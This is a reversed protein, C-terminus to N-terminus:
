AQSSAPEDTQNGLSILASKLTFAQLPTDFPLHNSRTYKLHEDIVNSVLQLLRRPSGNAQQYLWQDINLDSDALDNFSVRRSGAAQFRAKLLKRLATEDWKLPVLLPCCTFLDSHKTIFSTISPHLSQPLFYKFFINNHRSNATEQLLPKILAMMHKPDGWWNDVGDILIFIREYHWLNAIDLAVKLADWGHWAPSDTYHQNSVTQQVLNRLEPSHAVYHVPLRGALRWHEALGLGSGSEDKINIIYRVIRQLPRGGLHILTGLSEIQNATLDDIGPKFQEAIQIFLDIALQRSLREWHEEITPPSDMDRSFVYSVVLANEPTLRCTTELALRLSTKGLGPNGFVFATSPQRLDKILSIGSHLPNAPPVFHALSFTDRIRNKKSETVGEKKAEGAEKQRLAAFEQEAVPSIFPDWNLGLFNLYAPRAYRKEDEGSEGGETQMKVGKGRDPTPSFQYIRRKPKTYLLSNGGNLRSSLRKQQLM